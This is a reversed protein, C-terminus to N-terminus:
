AAGRRTLLVYCFKNHTKERYVVAKDQEGHQGGRIKIGYYDYFM